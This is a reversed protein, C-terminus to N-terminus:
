NRKASPVRADLSVREGIVGCTSAKMPIPIGMEDAYAALESWIKNKQKKEEIAASTEVNDTENSTQQTSPPLLSLSSGSPLLRFSSRRADMMMSRAASHSRRFVCFEALAIRAIDLPNVSSSSSSAGAKDSIRSSGGKESVRSASRKRVPPRDLSALTLAEEESARGVCLRKVIYHVDLLLVQTAPDSRTFSTLEPGTKSIFHFQCCFATLSVQYPLIDPFFFIRRRGLVIFLFINCVFFYFFYFFNFFFHIRSIISQNTTCSGSGIRKTWIKVGTGARSGNAKLSPVSNEAESVLLWVPTDSSSSTQPTSSSLYFGGTWDQQPAGLQWPTM